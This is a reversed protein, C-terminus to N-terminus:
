PSNVRVGSLNKGRCVSVRYNRSILVWFLGINFGMQSALNKIQMDKAAYNSCAATISENLIHHKYRQSWTLCPNLQLHQTWLVVPIVGAHIRIWPSKSCKQSLVIIPVCDFLTLNYNTSQFYLRQKCLFEEYTAFSCTYIIGATNATMRAAADSMANFLCLLM